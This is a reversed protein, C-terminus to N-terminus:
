KNYEPRMRYILCLRDFESSKAMQQQDRGNQGALFYAEVTRTTPRNKNNNRQNLQRQEHESNPFDEVFHDVAHLRLLKEANM